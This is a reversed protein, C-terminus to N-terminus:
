ESLFKSSKIQVGKKPQKDLKLFFLCLLPRLCYIKQPNQPTRAQRLGKITNKMGNLVGSYKYDLKGLTKASKSYKEFM